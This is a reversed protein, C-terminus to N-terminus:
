PSRPLALRGTRVLEEIKFSEMLSLFNVIKNESGTLEITLETPHVGIVKARFVECIQIVEIRTRSDARVRLLVLERDVYAGDRHERISIVDVLKELHHTVQELIKDDGRVAITMCSTSPDRTPSVNLADINFGRGSFMGVVRSLVGFRNEVVVTITHCM